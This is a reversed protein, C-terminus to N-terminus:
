DSRAESRRNATANKMGADGARNGGPCLPGVPRLVEGARLQVGAACGDVVIGVAVGRPGFNELVKVRMGGHGGIGGGWSRFRGLFRGRIAGVFQGAAVVQLTSVVM